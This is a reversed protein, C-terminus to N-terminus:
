SRMLANGVKKSRKRVIDLLPGAVREAAFAEKNERAAAEAAQLLTSPLHDANQMEAATAALRERAAGQVTALYGLLVEFEQKPFQM